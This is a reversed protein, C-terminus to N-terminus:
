VGDWQARKEELEALLPGLERELVASYAELRKQQRTERPICMSAHPTPAAVLAAAIRPIAALLDPSPM